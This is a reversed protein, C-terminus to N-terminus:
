LSKIQMSEARAHALKCFYEVPKDLEGTELDSYAPCWLCLNIIPCDRCQNLFDKRISRKDRIRPAFEELAEMLSGKKLDYICDSHCLSSCLKFYGDYSVTFDRNGAGCSFIHSCGHNLFGPRILKACNVRLFNFRESDSKEIAVIEEPYLREGRIEKNRETNRDFRLNLMHGFRFDDKSRKRCFHAIQPLEHVNSRLVMTKFKVKINNKLLLNLGRIFDAFSGPIRTVQEYTKRTVGYVSIEIDRFPYKRFLNIHNDTILSGNTFLSVLLGKKKLYLYIEFFDERLLPEGGTMLCWVAGLSVAQDVIGKIETFSLERQKAEKNYPPLNIYCHRCNNNCRATLELSFSIFCRHKKVLGLLPLESLPLNKVFSDSM